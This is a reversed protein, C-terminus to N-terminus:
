PVVMVTIIGVSVQVAAAAQFVGPASVAWCFLRRPAIGTGFQPETRGGIRLGFLPQHQCFLATTESPSDTEAGRRARWTSRAAALRSSRTIRSSALPMGPVCKTLAQRKSHSVSRMPTGVSRKWENTIGDGSDEMGSSGSLMVGPGTPVGVICASAFATAQPPTIGFENRGSRGCACQSHELYSHLALMWHKTYHRIATVYTYHVAASVPLM